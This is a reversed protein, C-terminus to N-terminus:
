NLRIQFVLDSTGCSCRCHFHHVSSSVQIQEPFDTLHFTAKTGGCVCTTSKKKKRTVEKSPVKKKKENFHNM